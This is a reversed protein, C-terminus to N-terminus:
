WSPRSVLQSRASSTPRPRPARAGTASWRLSSPLSSGTAPATRFTTAAGKLDIGNQFVRYCYATNATLGSITAKDQFVTTGSVTGAFNVVATATVSNPPNACDGPALGWKVVPLPSNTSTAFNVLTSTPTTDTLYPQRRFVPLSASPTVPTSAGSPPGTGIVNTATVTFTYAQGNTLGSVPCTLTGSTGCTLGGPSSTATYATIASGGNSAPATWSVTAQGNGAGRQRQDTRRATLANTPTVANSAGSELSNGVSNRAHVTFTYTTGNALGGVVASTAGAGM